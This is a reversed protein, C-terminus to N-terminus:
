IVSPYAISLGFKTGCSIGPQIESFTVNRGEIFCSEFNSSARCLDTRLKYKIKENIYMCVGGKGRGIINTYEIDGVM